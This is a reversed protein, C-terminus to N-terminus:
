RRWLEEDSSVASIGHIGRLERPREPLARPSSRSTIECACSENEMRPRVKGELVNASKKQELPLTGRFSSEPM